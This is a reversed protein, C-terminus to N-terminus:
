LELTLQEDEPLSIQLKATRGGHLALALSIEAPAQTLVTARRAPEPPSLDEAALVGETYQVFNDMVIGDAVWAGASRLLRRGARRVTFAFPRLSIEVRLAGRELVVLDGDIVARM